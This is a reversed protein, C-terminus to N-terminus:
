LEELVMKLAEIYLRYEIEHIKEELTELTDTDEVGVAEQAIIKGTDIGSDVYHVTVGTVKVGYEFADKIGEPGKFSPLLSPHLNIIKDEYKSIFNPSLIKMFGALVVLEVDCEKLIDLIEKEFTEKTYHKRDVVRYPIDLKKAREIAYANPNDVILVKITIDLDSEAINQFNSGSGSALIAVNTAMFSLDKAKLLM